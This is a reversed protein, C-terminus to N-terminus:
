MKTLHEIGVYYNGNDVENSGLVVQHVETDTVYFYCSARKNGDVTTATIYGNGFGVFSVNGNLDVKAVSEDTSQWIIDKNTANKPLISAELTFVEDIMAKIENTNLSISDVSVSVLGTVVNVTLNVVLIVVLPIAIMLFVLLKKM